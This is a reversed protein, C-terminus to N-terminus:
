QRPEVGILSEDIPDLERAKDRARQADATHGLAEHELALGTWATASTPHARTLEEFVVRSANHQGM